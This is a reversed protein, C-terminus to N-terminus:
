PDVNSGLADELAGEFGICLTGAYVEVACEGAREIDGGATTAHAPCLGEGDGEVGPGAEDCIDILGSELAAEIVVVEIFKDLVEVVGDVSGELQFGAFGGSGDSPAAVRDGEEFAEDFAVDDGVGEGVLGARMIWQM